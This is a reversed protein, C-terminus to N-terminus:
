LVRGGVYWVPGQTAEDDVDSLVRVVGAAGTIGESECRELCRRAMGPSAGYGSSRAVRRAARFLFGTRERDGTPNLPSCLLAARPLYDTSDLELYCLLDSWDPPLAAIAVDWTALPSRLQVEVGTVEAPAIEADLVEVECWIRQQDLRRFLRRIGEPGAPGGGRRVTLILAGAHRGPNAPGLIAAARPLEAPSECRVALRAAQWGDPLDRELREWQDVLRMPATLM